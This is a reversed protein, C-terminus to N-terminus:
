SHHYRVVTARPVDRLEKTLSVSHSPSRSPKQLCHHQQLFLPLSNLAWCLHRPCRVFLLWLLIAWLVLWNENTWPWALPCCRPLGSYEWSLSSGESAFDMYRSFFHFLFYHFTRIKVLDWAAKQFQLEFNCCHQQTKFLPSIQYKTAPKVLSRRTWQEIM